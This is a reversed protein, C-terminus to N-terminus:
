KDLTKQPHFARFPTKDGSLLRGTGYIPYGVAVPPVALIWGFPTTVATKNGARVIAVGLDGFGNGASIMTRGTSKRQPAVCSTFFLASLLLLTKKMTIKKTLILFVNTFICNIPYCFESGLFSLLFVVDM